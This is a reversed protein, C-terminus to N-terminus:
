KSLADMLKGAIYAAVNATVGNGAQKYKPGEAQKVVKGAAKWRNGDPELEMKFDCHTDPWGQLRMCEVSSLRRVTLTADYVAKIQQTVESSQPSRSPNNSASLAPAVHHVLNGEKGGANCSLTSAQQQERIRSDQNHWEYTAVGVGEGGQQSRLTVSVDESAKPTVDGNWSVVAPERQGGSMCNLTPCVVKHIDGAIRPEGDASRPEFAIGQQKPVLLKPGSQDAGGTKTTVTVTTEGTIEGNYVDVALTESGGGLDGEQSRLTGVGEEYKGFGAGTASSGANGPSGEVSGESKKPNRPLSKQQPVLAEPAAWKRAGGIAVAFVRRRRQAVGFYQSDLVRFSVARRPGVVVGANTWRQEGVPVLPADSGAMGALICGFANDDTNIAGCVNEWIIIAPEKGANLRLDDIANCLNNFTLALNGRDDSLSGRLGAVSFAQCPTGGCIVLDDADWPLDTARVETLDCFMEVEPNNYKYVGAAAKDWEVAALVQGYQEFGLGFGGVGACIEIVNFKM